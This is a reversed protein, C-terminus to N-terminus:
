KLFNRHFVFTQISMVRELRGGFRVRNLGMSRDGHRSLYSLFFSTLECRYIDYYVLFFFFVNLFSVQVYASSTGHVAAEQGAPPPLIAAGM